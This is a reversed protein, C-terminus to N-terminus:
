AIAALIREAVGDPGTDDVEVVHDAVERYLGEREASLRELTAAPRGDLLPRPDGAAARRALVEVSGRLWVVPGARTIARRNTEDLM